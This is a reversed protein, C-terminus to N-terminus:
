RDKHDKRRELQHARALYLGGLAGLGIGVFVIWGQHLGLGVLWGVLGFAIIGGLLYTIYERIESVNEGDGSRPDQQSM